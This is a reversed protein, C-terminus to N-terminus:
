CHISRQSLPLLGLLEPAAAGVQLSFGPIQIRSVFEFDEIWNLGSVGRRVSSAYKNRKEERARHTHLCNSGPHPATCDSHKSPRGLSSTSSPPLLLSNFQINQPSNHSSLPTSQNITARAHPLVPSPTSNWTCLRVGNEHLAKQKEEETTPLTIVCVCILNSTNRQVKWRRGGRWEPHERKNAFRQSLSWGSGELLIRWTRHQREYISSRFSSWSSKISVLCSFPPTGDLKYKGKNQCTTIRSITRTATRRTICNVRM